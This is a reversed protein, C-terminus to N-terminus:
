DNKIEIGNDGLIIGSELLFDGILSNIDEIENQIDEYFKLSLMSSLPDEQENEFNKFIIGLQHYNNALDLHLNSIKAPTEILVLENSKQIIKNGLNEYNPNQYNLIILNLIEVQNALYSDTYNILKDPSSVEDFTKISNLGYVDNLKIQELAQNSLDNILKTKQENSLEGGSRSNFYVNAFTNAIQSTVGSKDLNRQQIQALIKDQPDTMEDDPGSILPNRSLKVEDGDVAGDGDTDPNFPDTGWLGEEWDLLGDGDSDINSNEIKSDISIESTIVGEEKQNKDKYNSYVIISTSLIVILLILSSAKNSPLKM